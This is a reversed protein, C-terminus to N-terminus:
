YRDQDGDKDSEYIDKMQEIAEYEALRNRHQRVIRRSACDGRNRYSKDVDRASERRHRRYENGSGVAQELSM